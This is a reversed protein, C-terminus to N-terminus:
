AVMREIIYGWHEFLEAILSRHCYLEDPCFCTLQVSKGQDLREKILRILKAMEPQKMEEVFANVYEPWKSPWQNHKKWDWYKYFLESSPALGPIHTFGKPVSKCSRVIFLNIDCSPQCGQISSIKLIGKKISM